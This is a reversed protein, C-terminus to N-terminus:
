IGTLFTKSVRVVTIFTNLIAGVTNVTPCVLLSVMESPIPNHHLGSPQRAASHISSVVCEEQSVGVHVVAIFLRVPRLPARLQPARIFGAAGVQVLFEEDNITVLEIQENKEKLM